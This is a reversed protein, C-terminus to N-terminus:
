VFLGCDVVHGFFNPMYTLRISFIIIKLGLM